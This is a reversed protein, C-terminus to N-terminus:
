FGLKDEIETNTSDQQQYQNCDYVISVGNEPAEFDDKTIKLKPNAYVRKMFLAYIPLHQIQVAVMVHAPLIFPVTKVAQGYALLWNRPLAWLGVM